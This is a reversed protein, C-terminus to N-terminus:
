RWVMANLFRCRRPYCVTCGSAHRLTLNRVGHAPGRSARSPAPPLALAFTARRAISSRQVEGPRSWFPPGSVLTQLWCSTWGCNMKSRASASAASATNRLSHRPRLTWSNNGALSGGEHVGVVVTVTPRGDANPWGVQYSRRPPARDARRSSSAARAEHREVAQDEEGIGVDRRGRGADVLGSERRGLANVKGTLWGAILGVLLWAIIGGPELLM